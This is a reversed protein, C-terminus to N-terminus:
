VDRALWGVIWMRREDQEPYRHNLRNFSATRDHRSTHFYVPLAPQQIGEARLSRYSACPVRHSRKQSLFMTRCTFLVNSITLLSADGDRVNQKGTTGGINNEFFAWAEAMEELNYYETRLVDGKFTKCLESLKRACFYFYNHCKM